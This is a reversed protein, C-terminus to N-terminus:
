AQVDVNGGLAADGSVGPTDPRRRPQEAEDLALQALVAQRVYESLRMSRRRMARHVRALMTVEVSAWIQQKERRVRPTALRKAAM